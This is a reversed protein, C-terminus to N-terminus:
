GWSGSGRSKRGERGGCLEWAEGRREVGGGGRGDGGGGRVEESRVLSSDGKGEVDGV